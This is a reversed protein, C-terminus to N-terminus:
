RDRSALEMGQRELAERASKMAPEPDKSQASSSASTESKTKTSAESKSSLATLAPHWLEETVLQKIGEIQDVTLPKGENHKQERDLMRDLMKVQQPALEALLKQGFVQKVKKLTDNYLDQENMKM